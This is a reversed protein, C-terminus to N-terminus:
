KSPEDATTSTVEVNNEVRKIKALRKNIIVIKIPPVTKDAMIQRIYYGIKEACLADGLTAHMSLWQFPRVGQLCM